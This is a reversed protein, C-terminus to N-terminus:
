CHLFSSVPIGDGTTSKQSVRYNFVLNKTFMKAEGSEWSSVGRINEPLGEFYDAARATMLSKNWYEDYLAFKGGNSLLMQRTDHWRMAGNPTFVNEPLQKPFASDLVFKSGGVQKYAYVTREEILVIFLKEADYVAANVTRPGSLFVDRIAASSQVRDNLIVYVRENSFLYSYKGVHSNSGSSPIEVEDGLNPNANSGPLEGADPRTEHIPTSEKNKNGFFFDFLGAEVTVILCPVVLLRM